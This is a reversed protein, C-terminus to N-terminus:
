SKVPILEVSALESRIEELRGHTLKAEETFVSGFDDLPLADFISISGTDNCDQGYDRCSQIELFEPWDPPVIKYTQAIAFAPIGEAKATTVALHTGSKNILKDQFIADCGVVVADSEEVAYPIDADAVTRANVGRSVLEAVLKLGENKPGSEAVMVESEVNHWALITDRVAESYSLTFLKRAYALGKAAHAASLATADYIANLLETVLEDFDFEGAERNIALLLRSALNPFVGMSPRCAAFARIANTLDRTGMHEWQSQVLGGLAVLGRRALETAGHETDRAIKSLSYWFVRDGFPPWVRRLAEGLGPVTNLNSLEDLSYWAWEEAEWNTSIRTPDELEFLFPFVLWQRQEVEDHVTLPIGIGALRVNEEAVGAEESLEQYAQNLPLREIYGSFAAWLGQYTGVASSRRMLVIKNDTYLFATVVPTSPLSITM